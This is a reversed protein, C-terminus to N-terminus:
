RDGSPLANKTAGALTSSIEGVPIIQACTYASPLPSPAAFVDFTITDIDVSFTFTGTVTIKGILNNAQEMGFGDPIILRIIEGSLYDHDITTTIVAPNANTISSIIRMAPQFMPSPNSFCATM